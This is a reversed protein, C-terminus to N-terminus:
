DVNMLHSLWKFTPPRQIETPEGKQSSKLDIVIRDYGPNTARRIDQVIVGDIQRDGGIILGDKVYAKTKKSDAVHVSEPRIEALTNEPSPLVALALAAGM